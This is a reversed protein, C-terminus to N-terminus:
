RRELSCFVGPVRAPRGAPPELRKQGYLRGRRRGRMGELDACPGVPARDGTGGPGNGAAGTAGTRCRPRYSLQNSRVGSLRSTPREFRGLGVLEQRCPRVAPPLPPSTKQRRLGTTTLAPPSLQAKNLPVRRRHVSPPRLAAPAARRVSTEFDYLLLRSRPRSTPPRSAKLPMCPHMGRPPAPSPKTGASAHRSRCRRQSAEPKALGARDHHADPFPM